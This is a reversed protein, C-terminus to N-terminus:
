FDTMYKNSLVDKWTKRVVSEKVSRKGYKANTALCDLELRANITSIWKRRIEDDSLQQNDGIVRANRLRWILIRYLRSDSKLPVEKEEVITTLKTLGCALIEEMSPRIFEPGEKLSWLETACDWVTQQGPASCRTLIHEMNEETNCHQCTAREECGNLNKWYNGVKFGNHFTMWLFTRTKRLFDEHYLSRWIRKDTPLRKSLTM